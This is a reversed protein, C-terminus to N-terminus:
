RSHAAIRARAEAVLAAGDVGEDDMDAIWREAVPALVERFRATEAESLVLHRNGAEVALALGAADNAAWIDGVEGWWAADSAARFAAQIDAPLAEWRERSMSLQFTTTGFRWGDEGEIQYATRDQLQLPPIIEFPILAGDVVGRALAQPLDPVPMAVPNAGLAEIVWAGTRTPIRLALGAADAPTRVERDVTQLAQGAHAHLFMVELGRYDAALHEEFMAHMALNAARADGTFVTPLEFVETRPFLGPTYGNVTWILDVVGDRAQRVLEPPKGGLSMAPFIEIAVRGDAAAEVRRAWPAIMETHALARPSLFHHLQFRYEQAAATAAATVLAFAAVLVRAGYSLTMVRRVDQRQEDPCPGRRARKAIQPMDAAPDLAFLV